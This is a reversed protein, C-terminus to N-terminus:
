PASAVNGHHPIAVAFQLVIQQTRRLPLTPHHHLLGVRFLTGVIARIVKGQGLHANGCQVQGIRGVTNLM